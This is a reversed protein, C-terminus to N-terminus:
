QEFCYLHAARDCSIIASDLWGGPANNTNNGVKGQFSTTNDTWGDCHNLALNGAATIGTWVQRSTRLQGMEDRDIAALPGNAIVDDLGTAIVTTGDVLYWPASNSMRNIGSTQGDSLLAQWGGGGLCADAALRECEADAFDLGGINGEVPEGSIFVRKNAPPPACNGAGATGNGGDAGGMASTTAGSGAAAGSGAGAGGGGAGAPDGYKDLGALDACAAVLLMGCALALWKDSHASSALVASMM